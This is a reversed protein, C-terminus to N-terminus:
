FNVFLSNLLNVQLTPQFELNKILILNHTSVVNDVENHNNEEKAASVAVVRPQEITNVGTWYDGNPLFPLEMTWPIWRRRLVRAHNDNEFSYGFTSSIFVLLLVAIATTTMISSERHSKM